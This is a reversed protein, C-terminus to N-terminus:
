CAERKPAFHRVPDAGARSRRPPPERVALTIRTRALQKGEAGDLVRAARCSARGYDDIPRRVDFFSM